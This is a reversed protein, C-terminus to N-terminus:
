RDRSSAPDVPQRYARGARFSEVLAELQGVSPQQGAARALEIAKQATAVAETFRGTAAYAVALTRLYAVARYGTRQCARQALTVAREPDGGQGPALTALLWALRNQADPYDPRDWLALEFQAVAEQTKGLQALALGLNDHADADHPTIRTVQEFPGVADQTRGLLLLALGLNFQADVYHPKIRVSQEFHEVAEPLRGAKALDLGLNYHALWNDKTVEIAHGFLTETNEWYRVQVVSLAACIGVVAVADAALALRRVREGAAAGPVVWALMLFLGVSSLYTYRDAMSQVGVQVLGIVPVLMGLFWLWGVVLCPERRARWLVACTIGLLIAGAGMVVGPPWKEYPYFVALGGPWFTKGIYRAYSVLANAVRASMPLKALTRVVHSQVQVTVASSALALGLFPLKEWILEDVSARRPSAQRSGASPGGRGVVPPDAWRTRGLPWYDLLLLVFPLTVLMPKAMLGLAYLGLSLLLYRRHDPQEAYRVYAWVTLMWLFTSLVDKREAVWAVSEVHLPHLAFLAAVFACRWPANTIRNLVLFLLLTNALHFLLNVLHHAGPDLGFWQCDLMHSVWTVPHWNSAHGTTFAWKLGQLTLGHRVVPNEAVYKPDDYNTFQFHRVPWYVAATLLALSLCLLLSRRGEIGSSM